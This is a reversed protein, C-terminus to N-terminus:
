ALLFREYMPMLAQWDRGRARARGGQQLKRLLKRDNLLAFLGQRLAPASEKEVLLGSKSDEIIEKVAGTRAAVVPLGAGMAEILVLPLGEHRGSGLVRSPVALVDTATLLEAREDPGVAGLFRTQVRRRSARRELRQREPGDGAVVLEVGESGALADILLDVGKIPVLRGLFLVTFRHFAWARRLAKRSRKPALDALRVGMPTIVGRKELLLAAPTDLLARFEHLLASSVFGLVDARELIFAALRARGPLKGLLHV